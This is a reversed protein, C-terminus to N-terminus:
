KAGLRFNAIEELSNLFEEAADNSTTWHPGKVITGDAEIIFLTDSKGNKFTEITISTPGKPVRFVLETDDM